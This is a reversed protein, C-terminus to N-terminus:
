ATKIYALDPDGFFGRVIHPMAQLRRLAAVALSKLQDPGTIGSRGVRDNKINKWVWEDPNLQPSYGPLQYLRLKGNSAAAFDKVKKSRHVPHGDVILFVPGATDAMLRKCFEIFKEANMSGNFTSFRLLGQATVASIMNLSFRAGTSKVVPTRGIAGWTTGAHHDARIGAEDAFYITGGSKRAAKAIAPYQSTKWAEVKEPDAQWARWLPRQPSLGLRHLLRGVASASLKVGFERRIFVRVLDRTWLAFDLQLQRPDDGVVVEYVRELQEPTLKAPRGPIPKARLSERGHVRAMAVWGYVTHKHLGLALAVERPDAGQEVQDVARLRLVELTHHDLKRGDNERM